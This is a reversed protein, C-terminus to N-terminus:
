SRVPLCLSLFAVVVVVQKGARGNAQESREKAKSSQEDDDDDDTQCNFTLSLFKIKRTFTNSDQIYMNLWRGLAASEINM